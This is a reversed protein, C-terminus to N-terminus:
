EQRCYFVPAGEDTCEYGGRCDGENECIGMCYTEENEFEVCVSNEPCSGPTCPTVTCYGGRSARDCIRGQGCEADSSCEDGVEATCAALPLCLVLRLLHRRLTSPVLPSASMTEETVARGRAPCAPRGAYCIRRRPPM